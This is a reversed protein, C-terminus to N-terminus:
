IHILSLNNYLGIKTQFFSLNNHGTIIRVFRGLELRALKYVYRAKGPNPGEYFTKSHNAYPQGQWEACWAEQVCDKIKQKITAMPQQVNVLRGSEESGAGRKALVDARENGEHGKHAPIWVVTVSTARKALLNLSKIASAVTKSTVFNNALAMIAAQSDVFFKVYRLQQDSLQLLAEAAKLIAAVEAQFVTTGDPLRYHEARIERTGEYVAVGSGTKGNIKSGDTYVNLQTRQRHKANGDFSDLNVKFGNEWATVNCRDTGRVDIGWERVKKDLYGM